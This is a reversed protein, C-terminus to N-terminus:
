ILIWRISNSTRVKDEEGQWVRASAWPIILAHHPSPVRAGRTVPMMRLSSMLCVAGNRPLCVIGGTSPEFERTNKLCWLHQDAAPVIMLCQKIDIRIVQLLAM